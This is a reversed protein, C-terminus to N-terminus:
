GPILGVVLNTTADFFLTSMSSTREMLMTHDYDVNDVDDEKNSHGGGSAVFADLLMPRNGQPAEEVGDNDASSLGMCRLANFKQKMTFYFKSM